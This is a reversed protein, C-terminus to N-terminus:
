LSDVSVVSAKIESLFFDATLTRWSPLMSEREAVNKPLGYKTLTREKGNETKPGCGTPTKKQGISREKSLRRKTVNTARERRDDLTTQLKKAVTENIRSTRM